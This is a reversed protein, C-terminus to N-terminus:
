NKLLRLQERHLQLGMLKPLPPLPKGKKGQSSIYFPFDSKLLEQMTMSKWFACKGTKEKKKGKSYSKKSSNLVYKSGNEAIQPIEFM